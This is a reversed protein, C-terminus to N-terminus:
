IILLCGDTYFFSSMVLVMGTVSNSRYVLLLTAHAKLLREKKHSFWSELVKLDAATAM